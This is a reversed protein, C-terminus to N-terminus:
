EARRAREGLRELGSWTAAMKSLPRMFLSFAGHGFHSHHHLGFMQVAVTMAVGARMHTHTPMCKEYNSMEVVRGVFM